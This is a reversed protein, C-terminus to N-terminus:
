LQYLYLPSHTEKNALVFTQKLKLQQYIQGRKEMQERLSFVAKVQVDRRLWNLLIESLELLAQDEGSRVWYDLRVEVNELDELRGEKLENYKLTREIPYLYASGLCYTRDCNYFMLGYAESLTNDEEHLKLDAQNMQASFDDEPWTSDSWIRLEERSAMVAEYDSKFYASDTKFISYRGGGQVAPLDFRPTFINKKM